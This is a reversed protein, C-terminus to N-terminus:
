SAADGKAPRAARAAAIFAEMRDSDKIGPDSEVGSSVDVIHPRLRRVVDGVNGPVLGGAAILELGSPWRERVAELEDWPFPTGSGGLQDPHWGDLVVGDALGVWRRAEALVDDGPRLRIAKWLAWKGLQRLASVDSEGEDGHLQLVQAEVERAEMGLVVAPVDATVLVLPLTTAAGIERADAVSVCRPSGPVRIVGAHTAGFAQARRADRPRTLGCIKVKMSGSDPM